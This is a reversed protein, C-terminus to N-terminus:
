QQPPAVAADIDADPEVAAPRAGYQADNPPTVSPSRGAPRPISRQPLPSPAALAPSAPDTSPPPPAPPPSPRNRAVSVTAPPASSEAPGLPVVVGGRAPERVKVLEVGHREIAERQVDVELEAAQQAIAAPVGDCELKWKATRVALHRRAHERLEGIPQHWYGRSHRLRMGRWGEPAAQQPKRHHLGMYAIAGGASRLESVEVVYAGTVRSWVERVVREVALVESAPIGKVLYHGHMRRHGGSRKSRGTTFEILGVYEVRGWRARLARWLQKSAERYVGPDLQEWPQATTLTIALAPQQERADLFLCTADELDRLWGCYACDRRGCRLKLYRPGDVDTVALRLGQLARPCGAAPRAPSREGYLVLPAGGDEGHVGASAEAGSDM